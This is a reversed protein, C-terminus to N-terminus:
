FICLRGHSLKQKGQAQVRLLAYEERKLYFLTERHAPYGLHNM